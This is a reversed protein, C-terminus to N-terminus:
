KLKGIMAEGNRISFVQAALNDYSFKLVEPSVALDKLRSTELCLAMTLVALHYSKMYDDKQQCLFWNPHRMNFSLTGSDADFTFPIRFEEMEVYDFRLGTSSGKVETRKKGKPGYIIGPRHNPLETKRKVPDGSGGEGTKGKKEFTNGGSAVSSGEDQGIIKSKPLKVHGDGTTGIKIQDLIGSFQEQQLMLEAFPMVANGIKQFRSDAASEEAVEVIKKGKAKYWEEMVECLAFLADSDEFRKRDTHLKVKECKVRGELVGSLLAKAVDKDLLAQSCTAFQIGSIVSPNDFRGFTIEGRRGSKTLRSILLEISVNGCESKSSKFIELKDGSFEPAVVELSKVVESLDKFTITIKIPRSRIEEGFKVVLDHSLDEIKVKTIRRDRIIGYGMVRSRWWIKGSPDFQLGHESESPIEVEYQEEIEKTVFSYTTYENRRSSPCSTFLFRATIPLPSFFGLGFQGFRNEKKKLTDYVSKLVQAIKERSAGVGNDCVAFTRKSLDVNVDIRTADSDIANQVLESIVAPLDNYNSALGIVARGQHIGMKIKENM